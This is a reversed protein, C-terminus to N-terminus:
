RVAHKAALEDIKFGMDLILAAPDLNVAKGHRARAGLTGQAEAWARGAAPTPSLRALLAAEGSAAEAAPVGAVGARAVRAIFFDLLTLILSFRPENKAGVATEALKLLRPRNLGPLTSFLEVMEQYTEMGGLNLLRLAAGVSGASLTALAEPNGSLEAGTQALATAMEAPALPHLRLAQCRSRITPLLASPQHSILLLTVDAPPEELMKLLANAAAANMEDATDVIVVRRGGDPASLALFSKLERVDDVSIVSKLREKKADWGRRLLKLRPESLARMRSAIPNDAPVDLTDPTDPDEGFLGGGDQRAPQALLFRALRWALTAKGVGQPGTILWAHHLRDSNFADLFSAEAAGHGILNLTERPHPAGEIRDAEPIDDATDIRTNM